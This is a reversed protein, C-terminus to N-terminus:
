GRVPAGDQRQFGEAYVGAAMEGSQKARLVRADVAQVILGDVLKTLPQHDAGTVQVLDGLRDFCGPPAKDHAHLPM